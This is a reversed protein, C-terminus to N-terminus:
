LFPFYICLEGVDPFLFSLRHSYSSCVTAHPLKTSRFFNQMEASGTIVYIQVYSLVSCLCVCLCSHACTVDSPRHFTGIDTEHNAVLSYNCMTKSRKCVQKAAKWVDVSTKLHFPQSRETKNILWLICPLTLRPLQKPPFVSSSRSPHSSILLGSLLLFCVVCVCTCLCPLDHCRLPETHSFCSCSASLFFLFAPVAPFPTFHYGCSCWM